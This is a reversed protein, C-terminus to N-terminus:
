ALPSAFLEAYAATADVLRDVSVWEDNVHAQSLEGPGCVVAPVGAQNRVFRADTTFTMGIVEPEAGVVAAVAARVARVLPHGRDLESPEGFVSVDLDYRLEPDGVADVKRRLAAVASDVTAGPLLRRDVVLRCEEAVTNHGSGGGIEGVNCTPTGLLEHPEDGMDAGHLALVVLAAKQIASVGKGPDGGHAPRGRVTITAVLLGREAVCVRMGTPEPVLCADGRILGREALVATGLGGGREEDAVLHFVIDNAPERGARRLTSLACIAAAVGGKMDSTGRGYLRGEAEDLEAGFPDREWQRRDIPVVDLHGNVILVPRGSGGGQGVTAILSTRGPAPEVEEFRAGFPELAARCLDAAPREAGPPNRTDLRVLDATLAVVESTDVHERV